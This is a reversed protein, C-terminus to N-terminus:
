SLHDNGARRGEGGEERSIAMDSGEASGETNLEQHGWSLHADSHTNKLTLRGGSSGQGPVHLAWEPETRQARHWEKGGGIRGPYSHWRKSSGPM